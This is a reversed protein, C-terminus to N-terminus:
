ALPFKSKKVKLAEEIRDKIAEPKQGPLPEGAIESQKSLHEATASVNIDGNSTYTPFKLCFAELLLAFTTYLNDAKTKSLGGKIDRAPEAINNYIAATSQDLSLTGPHDIISIGYKAKAWRDVSNLTLHTEGTKETARRDIKLESSDGKSVEDDIDRLYTAAKNLLDDCRIVEEEKDRLDYYSTEDSTYKEAAEIFAQRAAVRFEMLQKELSDELSPIYRLQDEPIGHETVKILRQRIHGHMWGLMKAVAVDKTCSTSLDYIVDDEAEIM